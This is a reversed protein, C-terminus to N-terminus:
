SFILDFDDLEVDFDETLVEIATHESLIEKYDEDSLLESSLYQSPDEGSDGYGHNKFNLAMQDDLVATRQFGAMTLRSRKRIATYAVACIEGRGLRIYGVVMYLPRNDKLM